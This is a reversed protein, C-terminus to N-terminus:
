VAPINVVIFNVNLKNQTALKIFVVSNGGQRYIIILLLVFVSRRMKIGSRDLSRDIRMEISKWIGVEIVFCHTFYLCPSHIQSIVLLLTHHLNLLFGFLISKNIDIINNLYICCNELKNDQRENVAWCTKPMKGGMMLFKIVATAAEPKVKTDHHCDHQTQLRAPGVVFVACIFITADLQHNIRITCYHV